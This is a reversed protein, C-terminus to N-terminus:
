LIIKHRKLFEVDNQNWTDQFDIEEATLREKLFDDFVNLFDRAEKDVLFTFLFMHMDKDDKKEALGLEILEDLGKYIVGRPRNIARSISSAKFNSNNLLFEYIEAQVDTLGANKLITKYM